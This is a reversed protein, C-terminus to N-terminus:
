GCGHRAGWNAYREMPNCRGTGKEYLWGAAYLGKFGRGTAAWQSGHSVEHALLTGSIRRRALITGGITVADKGGLGRDVLAGFPGKAGYCLNMGQHQTCQAGSLKALAWAGYTKRGHRVANGVRRGLCSWCVKGDLDLKNIPDACVYDYDSCSGGEM